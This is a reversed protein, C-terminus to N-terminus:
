ARENQLANSERFKQWYFRTLLNRYNEFKTLEIISSWNSNHTKVFFRSILWKMFLDLLNTQRFINELPLSNEKGEHMCECHFNWFKEGVAFIKRWISKCYLEKTFYKIQRFKQLFFRPPFIQLNGCQPMNLICLCFAIRM